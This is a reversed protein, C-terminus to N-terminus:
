HIDTLSIGFGYQKEYLMLQSHISCVVLSREYDPKKFQLKLCGLHVLVM